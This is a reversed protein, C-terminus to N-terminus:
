IGGRRVKPARSHEVPTLLRLGFGNSHSPHLCRCGGPSVTVTQAGGTPRRKIDEIRGRETVSRRREGREANSRCRFVDGRRSRSGKGGAWREVSRRVAKSRGRGVERVQAVNGNRGWGEEAWTREAELRRRGRQRKAPCQRCHRVNLAQSRPTTRAHGVQPTSVLNLDAVTCYQGTHAGSAGRTSM